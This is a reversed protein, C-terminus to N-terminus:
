EHKVHPLLFRQFFVDALGTPSGRGGICEQILCMGDMGVIVHDVGFMEGLLYEWGAVGGLIDKSQSNKKRDRGAMSGPFDTVIELMKRHSGPRALGTADTTQLKTTSETEFSLLQGAESIWIGEVQLTEVVEGGFMPAIIRVEHRVHPELNGERILVISSANPLIIYEDDDVRALLSIPKAYSANATGLIALGQSAKSASAPPRASPDTNHLSVLITNSGNFAFNFYVGPFSGDKRTKDPTSTWRGVYQIYPHDADIFQLRDLTPPGSPRNINYQFLTTQKDGDRLWWLLAITM